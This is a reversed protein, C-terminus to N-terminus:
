GGLERGHAQPSPSVGAAPTARLSGWSNGLHKEVLFWFPGWPSAGPLRAMSPGGPCFGAEAKVGAKEPVYSPKGLRSMPSLFEPHLQALTLYGRLWGM